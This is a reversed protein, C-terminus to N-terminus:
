KPFSFPNKLALPPVSLQPLKINTRPLPPLCPVPPLDTFVSSFWELAKHMQQAQRCTHKTPYSKKQFGRKSPPLGLITTKVQKGNAWSYVAPTKRKSRVGSMWDPDSDDLVNVAPRKSVIQSPLPEDAFLADFDLTNLLHIQQAETQDM